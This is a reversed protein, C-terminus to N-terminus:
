GSRRVGFRKPAEGLRYQSVRWSTCDVVFVGNDGPNYETSRAHKLSEPAPVVGVSLNGPLVECALACFRAASYHADGYRGEMQARLRVLIEPVDGGNWHMYVGPSLPACTNDRFHIIARNGM